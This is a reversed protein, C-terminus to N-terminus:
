HVLYALLALGPVTVVAILWVASAIDQRLEDDFTVARPTALVGTDDPSAVHM